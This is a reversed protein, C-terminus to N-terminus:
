ASGLLDEDPDASFRKISARFARHRGDSDDSTDHCTEPHRWPMLRQYNALLKMFHPLVRRQPSAGDYLKMLERLERHDFGLQVAAAAIVLRDDDDCHYCDAGAAVIVGTEEFAAIYKRPVGYVEVLRDLTITRSGSGPRATARESM